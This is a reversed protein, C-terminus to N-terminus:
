SIAHLGLGDPPLADFRRARRVYSSGFRDDFPTVVSLECREHAPVPGWVPVRVPELEVVEVAVFAVDIPQACVHCNM